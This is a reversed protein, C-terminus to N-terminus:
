LWIVTYLSAMLNHTCYVSGWMIIKCNSHCHQCIWEHWLSKKKNSVTKWCERPDRNDYWRHNRQQPTRGWYPLKELNLDHKQSVMFIIVAWNTRHHLVFRVKLFSLHPATEFESGRWIIWSRLLAMYGWYDIIDDISLLISSEYVTEPM